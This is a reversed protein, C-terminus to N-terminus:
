LLLDGTCDTGNRPIEVLDSEQRYKRLEEQNLRFHLFICEFKGGVFGTLMYILSRDNNIALPAGFLFMKETLYKLSTVTFFSINERGM